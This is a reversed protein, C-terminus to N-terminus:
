SKIFTLFENRLEPNTDFQCVLALPYKVEVDDISTGNNEAVKRRMRYGQRYKDLAGLKIGGIMQPKIDIEDNKTIKLRKREDFDARLEASERRMVAFYSEKNLTCTKISENDRSPVIKSLETKFQSPEQDLKSISSYNNHLNEEVREDKAESSFLSDEYVDKIHPMGSATLQIVHRCDPDEISKGENDVFSFKQRSRDTCHYTDKEIIFGDAVLRALAKQGGLLTEMNYHKKFYDEVREPTMVEYITYNNTINTSHDNITKHKTKHISCNLKYETKKLREELEKIKDNKLRIEYEYEEKQTRLDSEIKDLKDDKEELTKKINDNSAMELQNLRIKCINIHYDLNNKTTIRKNCFSCEFRTSLSVGQENQIKLCSKVTRQHHLLSSTTQFTKKCYNCEM